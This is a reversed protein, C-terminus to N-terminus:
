DWSMRDQLELKDRFLQYHLEARTRTGVAAISMPLMGQQKGEAVPRFIEEQRDLTETSITYVDVTGILGAM